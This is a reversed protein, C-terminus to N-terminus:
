RAPAKRRACSCHGTRLRRWTSSLAANASAAAQVVRGCRRRASQRQQQPDGCQQQEAAAGGVPEREATRGRLLNVADRHLRQIREGQIGVARDGALRARERAELLALLLELVGGGVIRARRKRAVCAERAQHVVGARHQPRAAREGIRTGGRVLGRGQHRAQDALGLGQALRQRGHVAGGGPTRELAELRARLAQLQVDGREGLPGRVGPLGRLVHGLAAIVEALHDGREGAAGGGQRQRLDGAGLPELVQLVEVGSVLVEGGRHLARDGRSRRQRRRLAGRAGDGAPRLV